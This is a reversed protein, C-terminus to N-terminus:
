QGKGAKLLGTCVDRATREFLELRQELRRLRADCVIDLDTLEDLKTSVVLAFADSKDLTQFATLSNEMADIRRYRVNRLDAPTTEATYFPLNEVEDHVRKNQKHAEKLVESDPVNKLRAANSKMLEDIKEDAEDLRADQILLLEALPRWSLPTLKCLTQSARKIRKYTQFM